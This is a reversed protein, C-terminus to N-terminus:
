LCTHPSKSKSLQSWVTFTLVSPGMRSAWAKAPFTAATFPLSTAIELRIPEM